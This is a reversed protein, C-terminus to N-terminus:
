VNATKWTLEFRILTCGAFHTPWGSVKSPACLCKAWEVNLCHSENFSYKQSCIIESRCVFSSSRPATSEAWRRNLEKNETHKNWMGGEQFLTLMEIKTQREPNQQSWLGGVKPFVRSWVRIRALFHAACTHDPWGVQSCSHTRPYALVFLLAIELINM